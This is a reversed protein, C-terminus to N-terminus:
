RRMAVSLPAVASAAALNAAEGPRVALVVLSSQSTDANPEPVTVVPAHSALLEAPRGASTVAYVDIREGPQLLAAVAPDPIPVMAAVLGAGYGALLSRGLLRVNTLTEGTRMPTALVRGLAAAPSTLAGQAAVDAAMRTVRVDGSRLAIGGALDRAATVVPVTAPPPPAAARALCFAAVGALLAAAIRRHRLYSRRFRRILAKRDLV